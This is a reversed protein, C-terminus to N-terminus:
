YLGRGKVLGASMILSLKNSLEPVKKVSMGLLHHSKEEMEQWISQVVDHSATQLGWMIM